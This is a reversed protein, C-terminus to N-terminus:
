KKQKQYRQMNRTGYTKYLIRVLLLRHCKFAIKPIKKRMQEKMYYPEVFQLWTCFCVFLPLCGQRLSVVRRDNLYNVLM